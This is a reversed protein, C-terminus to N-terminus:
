QKNLVKHFAEYMFDINSKSICNLDSFPDSIIGKYSSSNLKNIFTAQETKTLKPFTGNKVRVILENLDPELNKLYYCNEATNNITNVLTGIPKNSLICEIAITGTVTVVLHAHPLVDDMLVSHHLAEINDNEQVVRILDTSLEYKSKPNPKVFLVANEPLARALKYVLKTQDRYARGWVDINAEPQMQLPYLVKFCEDSPVNLKAIADWTSINKVRQKEIARKIFPSPTNFSEGSVHAYVKKIKDKLLKSKSAPQPKMYDPLAARNVIQDVVDEAEELPLQEGSGKYPNLTDYEYFSFRGVPYRCSSPNLYRISRKKCQAITLLEHFATSEGFVIDPKVQDLITGIENYYYYFYSKDKQGFHNHQRDSYIVDEVEPIMNDVEINRKPYNIIHFKGGSKPTFLKNQIIWNIDYGDAKLREVIPDFFFTKYRNEIFVLTM